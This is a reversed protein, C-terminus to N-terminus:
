TEAEGAEWVAQIADQNLVVGGLDVNVKRPPRGSRLLSADHVPVFPGASELYDSLRQRDGLSLAGRLLLGGDLQMEVIRGPSSAPTNTLPVDGDAATAWLVQDVRLVAHRVDSDETGTWHAARVNIYSKRNAFFTSLAQGDALSVAAELMRFDRLFIRMRHAPTSDM